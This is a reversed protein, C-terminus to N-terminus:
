GKGLLRETSEFAKRRFGILAFLALAMLLLSSPESVPVADNSGGTRSFDSLGNQSFLSYDVLEGSSDTVEIGSFTATNFFDSVQTFDEPMGVFPDLFYGYGSEVSFALRLDLPQGFIIELELEIIDNFVGQSLISEADSQATTIVTTGDVLTEERETLRLVASGGNLGGSSTGGEFILTDNNIFGSVQYALTLIGSEGDALGTITWTDRLDASAWALFSKTDSITNDDLFSGALFNLDDDFYEPYTDVIQFFQDDSLEENLGISNEIESIMQQRTLRGNFITSSRAKLSTGDVASQTSANVIAYRDTVSDYVYTKTDCSSASTGFDTCVNIGSGDVGFVHSSVPIADASFPFLVALGILCTRLKFM